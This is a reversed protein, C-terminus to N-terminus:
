RRGRRLIRLIGTRGGVRAWGFADLGGFQTQPRAGAEVLAGVVNPRGAQVARILATGGVHTGFNPDARAELLRRLVTTHGNWSAWMLPTWGLASSTNPDAGADLLLDVIPKSGIRAALMLPTWGDRDPTDVEAGGSLLRGVGLPRDAKAAILLPTRGALSRANVDAGNEVLTQLTRGRAGRTAAAMLLTVGSDDTGDLDAGQRRLLDATSSKESSIAYLLARAGPRGEVTAGEAFLWELGEDDGLRALAVIARAPEVGAALLEAVRSEDREEVAERLARRSEDGSEDLSSARDVTFLGLALGVLLGISVKPM